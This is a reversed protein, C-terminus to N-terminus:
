PRTGWLDKAAGRAIMLLDPLNSTTESAQQLLARAWQRDGFVTSLSRALAALDRSELRAAEARQYLAVAYAQEGSFAAGEAVRLCDAPLQCRVEAKELLRKAYPTDVPAKIVETALNALNGVTECDAERTELAEETAM